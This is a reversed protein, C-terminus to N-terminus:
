QFLYNKYEPNHEYFCGLYVLKSNPSFEIAYPEFRESGNLFNKLTYMLIIKGTTDNFKCIEFAQYSNPSVEDRYATILYKKNFSVKMSGWMSQMPRNVTGSIVPTLNLGSNTLLYAAYSDDTFKRTIIWIDKGNAHKCATLREAADFASPINTNKEIVAGLGGNRNIDIVSYHLGIPNSYSAVTFLYFLHSSGPKQVILSGQSVAVSGLINDGNQMIKKTSDWVKNANSCFLFKGSTDCITSSANMSTFFSSNGLVVPSGTNFNVGGGDGFYWINAQNQAYVFPTNLFILSLLIHLKIKM